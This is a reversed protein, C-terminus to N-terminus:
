FTYDEPEYGTIDIVYKFRRNLAYAKSFLDELTESEDALVVVIEDAFDDMLKVLSTVSQISLASAQEVLLCSQRLMGANAILDMQNLKDGTIRAIQSAHIQGKDGIVKAIKKTVEITTDPNAGILVFHCQEPDAEVLKLIDRFTKHIAMTTIPVLPEGKLEALEATIRGVIRPDIGKEGDSPDTNKEDSDEATKTEETTDTDKAVSDEPAAGVTEKMTDADATEQTKEVAEESVMNVSSETEETPETEEAPVIAPEYNANETHPASSDESADKTDEQGSTIEQMNDAVKKGFLNDLAQEMRNTVVDLQVPESPVPDLSQIIAEEEPTLMLSETNPFEEETEVTVAKEGLQRQESEYILSIERALDQTIGTGSQSHRAFEQLQEEPITIRLEEPIASAEPESKDEPKVPISIDNAKSAASIEELPILPTTDDFLPDNIRLPDNLKERKRLTLASDDMVGTHHQKLLIARDVIEGEGFWLIIDSCERICEEKMGEKHYLKALEYAWEEMYDERKLQELTPILENRPVGKAKDIRYRLILRDSESPNLTLYDQYYNEAEDLSGRRISLFILRHVVRKTKNKEYLRLYINRADEFRETKIYVEGFNNLDLANKVSKIDLTDMLQLAKRYRKEEVLRRIQACKLVNDYKGM